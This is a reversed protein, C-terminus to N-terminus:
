DGDATDKKADFIAELRTLAQRYDKKTKIPKITMKFQKLMIKDYETHTGLFRIWMMQYDYNIRVILRYHNGQINLVVRNDALFSATPCELKIQKPSSWENKFM